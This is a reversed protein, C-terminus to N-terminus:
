CGPVLNCDASILQMCVYLMYINHDNKLWHAAELPM